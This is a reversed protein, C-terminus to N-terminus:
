EIQIKDKSEQDIKMQLLQLQIHSEKKDEELQNIKNQMM